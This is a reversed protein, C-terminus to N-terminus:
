LTPTSEPCRYRNKFLRVFCNPDNLGVTFPPFGTSPNVMTQKCTRREFLAMVQEALEANLYHPTQLNPLWTTCIKIGLSIHKSNLRCSATRRYQM